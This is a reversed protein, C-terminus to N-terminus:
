IPSKPTYATLVTPTNEFEFDQPQSVVTGVFGDWGGGRRWLGHGAEGGNDDGEPVHNRTIRLRVLVPVSEGRLGM